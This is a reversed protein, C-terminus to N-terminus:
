ASPVQTSKSSNPKFLLSAIISVILIGSIIMLSWSIPFKGDFAENLWVMKLGVFMLVFALGHKLYHFKHMVNALLFYMSRLGLIAFINSTFVIFPEKTIAFIAPISDVAFIVDSFELFALCLFLPTAMLVGNKRVFFEPGEIKTTVPLFKRVLRLMPNKEPDMEKDSTFLMKLGTFLLLVGFIVVVAHWTMLVSGIAIFVGRFFLAGLIGYFLIRHQYQTPINFYSFIVIFVFINDVALAKEVVYGTLFELGVQRSALLPDFGPIAMLRPNGAFSHAAYHMLGWNFLLALSVWVVSWIGAERMSIKHAKRHFVGLDLVIMFGVFGLFILYLWWYEAIPFLQM